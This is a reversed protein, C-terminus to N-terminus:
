RQQHEPFDFDPLHSFMSLFELRTAHPFGSPCVVNQARSSTWKTKQVKRREAFRTLGPNERKPGGPRNIVAELGPKECKRVIRGTVAACRISKSVYATLDMSGEEGKFLLRVPRLM